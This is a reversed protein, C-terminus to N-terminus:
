WRSAAFGAKPDAKKNRAFSAHGVRFPALFGEV